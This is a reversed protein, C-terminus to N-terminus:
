KCGCFIDRAMSCDSDVVEGRTLRNATQVTTAFPCIYRWGCAWLEGGFGASTPFAFTGCVM